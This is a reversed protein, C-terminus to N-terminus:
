GTCYLSVEAGDAPPRYLRTHYLLGPLARSSGHLGAPGRGLGSPGTELCGAKGSKNAKRTECPGGMAATMAQM